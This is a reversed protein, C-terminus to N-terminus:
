GAFHQFKVVDVLMQATLRLSFMLMPITKKCMQQHVVSEINMVLGLNTSGFAVGNFINISPGNKASHVHPTNARV